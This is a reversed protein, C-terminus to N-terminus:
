KPSAPAFNTKIWQAISPIALAAGFDFVRRGPKTSFLAWGGIGISAALAAAETPNEDIYAKSKQLYDKALSILRDVNERNDLHLSELSFNLHNPQPKSSDTTM